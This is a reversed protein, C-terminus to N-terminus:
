DHIARILDAEVKSYNFKIELLPQALVFFRGRKKIHRTLAMDIGAEKLEIIAALKLIDEYTYFRGGWKYTKGSPMVIQRSRYKTLVNHKIVKDPFMESLISAVEGAPYEQSKSSM